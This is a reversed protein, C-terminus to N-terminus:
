GRRKRRWIALCLPLGVALLLGSTPEPLPEAFYYGVGDGILNLPTLHATVVIQQTGVPIGKYFMADTHTGGANILTPATIDGTALNLQMKHRGAVQLQNDQNGVYILSTPPVLMSNADLLQVNYAPLAIEDTTNWIGFVLDPLNGNYGTLDFIVQSTNVPGGPGPNSPDGYVTMALHGQVQGTGPFLATFQSPNILSNVNDAYGVAAPSSFVHTVAITGNFNNSSFTTSAANGSVNNGSVSLFSYPAGWAVSSSAGLLILWLCCCGATRFSVRLTTSM